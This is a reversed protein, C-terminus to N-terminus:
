LIPDFFIPDFFLIPDFCLLYERIGSHIGALSPSDLFTEVKAPARDVGGLSSALEWNFLPPSRRITSVDVRQLRPTRFHAAGAQRPQGGKNRQCRSPRAFM